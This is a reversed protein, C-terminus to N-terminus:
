PVTSRSDLEIAELVVGQPEIAIVRHGHIEQGVELRQSGALALNGDPGVLVANVGAEMLQAIARRQAARKQALEIEQQRLEQADEPQATEKQRPLFGDPTAFPDHATCDALDVEPWAVYPHPSDLSAGGESPQDPANKRDSRSEQVQPRPEDAITTDGSYTRVQIAVVVLFVVTLGAAVALKARSQPKNNTKTERM